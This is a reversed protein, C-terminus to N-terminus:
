SVGPTARPPRTLAPKAVRRLRFPPGAPGGRAADLAELEACFTANIRVRRRVRVVAGYAAELPLGRHQMLFQILCAVSRSRGEFCHVLVSGGQHLGALIFDNMAPFHPAMGESGDDKLRIALVQLGDTRPESLLDAAALNVIHTIGLAPLSPGTGAVAELTGLYLGEAVKWLCASPEDEAM